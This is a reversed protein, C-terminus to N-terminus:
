DKARFSDHCGKCTKGIGSAADRIGAVNGGAAATELTASAQAFRAAAADFTARDQWIAPLAETEVGAEPGTGDPFWGPIQRALGALTTANAQIAAVDPQPAKLADQITKNAKAIQKYNKQRASITDAPSQGGAPAAVNAGESQAAAANQHVAPDDRGCAATVLM